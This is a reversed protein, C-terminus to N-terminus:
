ESSEDEIGSTIVTVSEDPLSGVFISKKNRKEWYNFDVTNAEKEPDSAMWQWYDQEGRECLWTVFADRQEQTEFRFVTDFM